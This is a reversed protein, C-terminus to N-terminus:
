RIEEPWKEEPIGIMEAYMRAETVLMPPKPITIHEGVSRHIVAVAGEPPALDRTAVWGHLFCEHLLWGSITLPKYLDVDLVYDSSDPIQKGEHKKPPQNDDPEPNSQPPKPGSTM